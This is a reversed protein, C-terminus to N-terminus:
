DTAREKREFEKSHPLLTGHELRQPGFFLPALRVVEEIRAVIKMLDIGM